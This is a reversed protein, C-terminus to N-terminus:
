PPLPPLSLPLPSLPSPPPSPWESCLKLECNERFISLTKVHNVNKPEFHETEETFTFLLIARLVSLVPSDSVSLLSLGCLCPVTSYFINQRKSWTGSKGSKERRVSAAFSRSPSSEGSTGSFSLFAVYEEAEEHMTSNVFPGNLPLSVTFPLFKFVRSRSRSCSTLTITSFSSFLALSKFPLSNEAFSEGWGDQHCLCGSCAFAMEQGRDSLLNGQEVVLIASVLRRDDRSKAKIGSHCQHFQSDSPRSPVAAEKRHLLACSCSSM